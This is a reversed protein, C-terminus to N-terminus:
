GRYAKLDRLVLQERCVRRGLLDLPGQFQARRALRVKREMLELLDQLDPLDRQDLQGPKGLGVM